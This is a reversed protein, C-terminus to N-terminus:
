FAVAKRSRLNAETREVAQPRTVAVWTSAFQPFGMRPEVLTVPNEGICLDILRM